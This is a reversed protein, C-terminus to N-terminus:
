VKGLAKLVKAPTFPPDLWKGIANYIASSIVAAPMNNATEGVGKAGFPGYPDNSEVPIVDLQPTLALSFHGYDLYNTTLPAGTPGDMVYEEALSWGLSQILGGQIQNELTNLNIVRGVDNAQLMRLVSVEGTETDVEIEAFNAYYVESHVPPAPPGPYRGYGVLARPAKGMVEKFTLKKNPDTTVFIISDKSSLESISVNLLGAAVSFLKQKADAAAIQVGKGLTHVTRTASQVACEPLETSGNVVNIDEFRAGLEEAVIQALATVVGTGMESAATMLVATGDQNMMVVASQAQGAFAGTTHVGIACAVGRRKVGTESKSKFPKWKSAWGFADAGRRLCEELGVSAAGDYGQVVHSKSRIEVPDLGFEEAARNVATEIFFHVQPNGYGRYAGCPPTNTYATKYVYKSALMYLQYTARRVPVSIGGSAYAGKEWLSDVVLAKMTGDSALGIKTHAVTPHRMKQSGSFQYYKGPELKVPRQSKKSLLAAIALYRYCNSEAFGTGCYESIVKVKDMPLDFVYALENRRDYTCQCSDWVTLTGGNPWSAVAVHPAIAAVPQRPTSTDHEVKLDSSAFIAEADGFKSIVGSQSQVLNGGAHVEPAGEKLADSPSFVAPLQQYTIQILDLADEATFPDVAAIAAVEDGVYRVEDELVYLDSPSPVGSPNNPLPKSPADKYTVVAKVGALAEAKSTDISTIKAHAYPSRLLKGYLM